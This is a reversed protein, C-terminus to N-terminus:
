GKNIGLVVGLHNQITVIGESMDDVEQILHLVQRTQRETVAPKKHYRDESETVVKYSKKVNVEIIYHENAM